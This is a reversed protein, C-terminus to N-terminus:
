AQGLFIRYGASPQGSKVALDILHHLTSIEQATDHAEHAIRAHLFLASPDDPRSEVVRNSVKLADAFRRAGFLIEAKTSLAPAFNENVALAKEVDELAASWRGTQGDYLAMQTWTDPLKRDLSLAEDFYRKALTAQGIALLKGAIQTLFSARDRGTFNAKMTEVTTPDWVAAPPRRFILGTHDLYALTWDKSDLLHKLLPRYAGPDGCLFLGDFHVTHDLQRFVAPNQAAKAFENLAADGPWLEPRSARLAANAPPTFYVKKLDRLREVARRPETLEPNLARAARPARTLFLAGVVLNLSVLM